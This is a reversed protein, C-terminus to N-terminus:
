LKCVQRIKLLNMRVQMIATLMSQPNFLGGLWVIAPLSFDQTWNDLEKQRQLLDAYRYHPFFRSKHFVFISPLCRFLFVFFFKVLIDIDSQYAM